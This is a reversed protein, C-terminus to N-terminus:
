VLAKGNKNKSVLDIFDTIFGYGADSAMLLVQKDEGMVVHEFNAGASLNFRGTMPEGQSRASPLSHADTAFARGASDLFVAPQ